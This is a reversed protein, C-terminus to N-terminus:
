WPKLPVIALENTEPTNLLIVADRDDEGRLPIWGNAFSYKKLTENVSQASNFKELESIPHIKQLLVEKLDNLPLYLNPRHQIDPGGFASEYTILSLERQDSPNRAAVIGYGLLPPNKYIAAAKDLNRSDLENARVVDFRDGTFVLWVPRASFVTWIGYLLAAIQVAAILALDLKLSKKASNFVCFTLIPGVTIDVFFVLGFIHQVDLLQHLPTPFWIQFIFFAFVLVICSSISLHILFAKLREHFNNIKM